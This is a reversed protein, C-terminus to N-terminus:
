SRISLRQIQIRSARSAQRHRGSGGMAKAAQGNGLKRLARVELKHVYERSLGLRRGIEKLTLVDGELGYRFTLIARERADLRRMLRWLAAREEEAEAREDACDSRDTLEGFLHDSPGTSYSSELRIRGADLARRVLTKQVESLPLSSAIEEFSPSCGNERCLKREGRRWKTLLGMMHAPLRITATTNILAYRIAEKIWYAAYTSFRTGFRPDFEEAGRILGLNGEAVLDEFHLGRGLFERAITGVLGLNAQVLRNRSERDGAAIRAALEHEEQASLGGRAPPVEPVSPSMVVTVDDDTKVTSIMCTFEKEPGGARV